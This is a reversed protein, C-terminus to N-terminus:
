QRTTSTTQPCPPNTDTTAALNDVILQKTSEDEVVAFQSRQQETTSEDTDKSTRQQGTQSRDADTQDSQVHRDHKHRNTENADTQADAGTRGEENKPCALAVGFRAGKPFLKDIGDDCSMPELRCCVLATEVLTSVFAM